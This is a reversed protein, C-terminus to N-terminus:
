LLGWYSARKDLWGSHRWTAIAQNVQTRLSTYQLGKPMVIALPEGSLRQAVLRYEPYEQMWGILLSQDAAFADVEGSELLQYAQEYSDVGVLTAQPLQVRIVPITTSQQLIAIKSTALDRLHEIQPNKSIIGTGDLYYFPSFDVLQSRPANVTVRAIALDAKGNIVIDLREQNTVALFQIAQSDGLLESALRRAIDIELGQWQQAEDRFALPPINDKVAVILTERAKIVELPAPIAPPHSWLYIIVVTTTCFTLIFKKVAQPM